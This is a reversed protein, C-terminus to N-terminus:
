REWRRSKPKKGYKEQWMSQQRDEEMKRYKANFRMTLWSEDLQKDAAKAGYKYEDDSMDRGHEQRFKQLTEAKLKLRIDFRSRLLESQDTDGSIKSQQDTFSQQETRIKNEITAEEDSFQRVKAEFQEIYDPSAIQISDLTHSTTEEDAKLKELEETLATIQDTLERRKFVAYFPLAERESELSHLEESKAKETSQIYVLKASTEQQRQIANKERQVARESRIRSDQVVWLDNFLLIMNQRAQEMAHAIAPITSKLSDTLKRILEKLARIIKNDERIQRNLECRESVFGNKEMIRAVVGEHITPKEDM